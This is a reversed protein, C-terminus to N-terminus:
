AVRIQESTLKRASALTGLGYYMVSGSWKSNMQPGLIAIQNDFSRDNKNCGTESLFLPLPYDLSLNYLAAYGSEIFSSPDCWSFDEQGYFDITTANDGGCSLYDRIHTYIGLVESSCYGVPIQRM